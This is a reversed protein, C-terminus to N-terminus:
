EQADPNRQSNYVLRPDLDDLGVVRDGSLVRVVSGPHEQAHRAASRAYLEPVFGEDTEHM